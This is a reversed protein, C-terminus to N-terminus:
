SVRYNYSTFFSNPTGPYMHISVKTKCVHYGRLPTSPLATKKSGQTKSPPPFGLSSILVRGMNFRWLLMWLCIQTIRSDITIGQIGTGRSFTPCEKINTDKLTLLQIHMIKKKKM